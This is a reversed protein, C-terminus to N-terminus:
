LTECHVNIPELWYIKETTKHSIWTDNINIGDLLVLFVLTMKMVGNLNFKGVRPKIKKMAGYAKILGPYLLPNTGEPM